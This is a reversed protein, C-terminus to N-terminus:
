SGIEVRYLPYKGYDGLFNFTLQQGNELKLDSAATDPLPCEKHPYCVYLFANENQSAIVAALQKLKDVTETRFFTKEPLASWLQQAVHQDSMGIWEIPEEKLASIAPAIPLYNAALSKSPGDEYTNFAGHFTNLEIGLILVITSLAIVLLRAWRRFFHPRLQEALVLSLLPMLILYFRPGWQKGGAGPPVILPVGIAFLLCLLLAFRAPMPDNLSRKAVGLRQLASTLKGTKFKNTKIQPRRLEPTIFATIGVLVVMPFYVLLRRWMLTYSARAEQLQEAPSSEEVIQIGHIGLPYGYIGYNLAFFLGLTFAMSLGFICVQAFTFRPALKWKPILWGVVALFGVAAVLCFFEPRFWVSLGILVGSLLVRQNSLPTQTSSVGRDEPQAPFMLATVGWFALAVALTHEWYMGGYLTLPAAFILTVLGLCLAGISWGARIGIQWFRGWIAWLAVLPVINMGRDGLLAYFPATVAPFTFPFTIFHQSGVEYVYPTTFPYLGEDWLAEVWEAAPLNLSVDLPFDGMRLQQALHQAVLAKLGGDGSFVVGGQSFIQLWLSLLVGGLVFLGPLLAWPLRAAPSKVTM